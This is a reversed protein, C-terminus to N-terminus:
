TRTPRRSKLDLPPSFLDTTPEIGMCKRWSLSCLAERRRVLGAAPPVRPKGYAPLAYSGDISLAVITPEVATPM